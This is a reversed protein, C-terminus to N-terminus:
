FWCMYHCYFRYLGRLLQEIVIHFAGFLGNVCKKGSSWRQSFPRFKSIECIISWKARGVRRSLPKRRLLISGCVELHTIQMRWGCSVFSYPRLQTDVDSKSSSILDQVHTRPLLIIVNKRSFHTQSLFKM